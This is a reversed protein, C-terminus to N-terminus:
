TWSSKLWTGCSMPVPHGTVMATLADHSMAKRRTIARARAQSSTTDGNALRFTTGVSASSPMAAPKPKKTAGCSSVALRGVVVGLRIPATM